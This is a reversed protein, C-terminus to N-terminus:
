TDGVSSRMIDLLQSLKEAEKASLGEAIRQMDAEVLDVQKLKRKGIATLSVDVLRKDEPCVRRSVWRKSELRDVLRSTDSMRDLMRDRIDSTSIPGGAGRLIRLVNYQQLTLGFPQLLDRICETVWGYTFMLNVIAMHQPSNFPKVQKIEQAISTVVRATVAKVTKSRGPSKVATKSLPASKVSKEAAKKRGAPAAAKTKKSTSM